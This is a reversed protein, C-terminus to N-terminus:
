RLTGHTELTSPRVSRSAGRYRKLGVEGALLPPTCASRACVCVCVGVGWGPTAPRLWFGLGLVCVWAACGLWSLRPVPPARVGACVCGLVGALLPPACGFGSGLCVCGCWVGWGPTAPYLLPVCVLLCVAWCGLWSLRRAASVPARVCVGVARVGALLPPNCASSGCCCVCLGVGWGPTAPRLRSGLGFVCACPACGLWSHRPALQAGVGACVCGLLGALLRPPCGFGSSLSGWGWRVGLGPTASYLPPMCLFVCVGVGWGSPAPRPRFGLGLVCVLAACGPWSHRPVPPAPVCVHVGWCGLWSHRPAASVRPWVCVGGGCVGALLPPTCPSCACLCPCGLVGALLPPACGFGWGLCVCGCRVGLGPTAPYLPLVCVLVCVGWCGLWSHRPAASVGAWVCVGVGCPGALLPPTCASCACWCVCVGGGRGLTAPHLRFACLFVCVGWCGLWSHRPAAAVRALAGVGAGRVGALLPPTCTSPALLCLCVGVGWGPTAPRLRFGLGLVCVWAARGLWSHRHALLARVCASLFGSMGALLPPAYGFGSGLCVCLRCVGWGDTAPYLSLTCLLACVGWCGLWSHRPAASVRVWGCGLGLCLRWAVSGLTWLGPVSAARAMYTVRGFSIQPPAHSVWAGPFGLVLFM